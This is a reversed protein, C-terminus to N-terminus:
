ELANHNYNFKSITLFLFNDLKQSVQQPSEEHRCKAWANIVANFTIVNPKVTEDGSEYAEQMGKLIQEARKAAATDSEGKSGEEDSDHSGISRAWGDITMTYMVFSPYIDERRKKRKKTSSNDEREQLVRRLIQEAKLAGQVSNTKAWADVAFHAESLNIKTYSGIPIEHLLNNTTEELKNNDFLSSQTTTPSYEEGEDLFDDDYDDMDFDNNEISSFLPCDNNTEAAVPKTTKIRTRTLLPFIYALSSYQQQQRRMSTARSLPKTDPLFCFVSSSQYCVFLMFTLYFFPQLSPSITKLLPSSMSRLQIHCRRRNRRRQRQEQLVCKTSHVM